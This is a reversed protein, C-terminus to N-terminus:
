RQPHGKSKDNKHKIIKFSEKITHDPAQSGNDAFNGASEIYFRIKGQPSRKEIETTVIKGKINTKPTYTHFINEKNRIETELNINIKCVM